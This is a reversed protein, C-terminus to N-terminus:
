GGLERRAENIAANLEAMAAHTGGRDPHHKAAMHRYRSEVADLDVKEDFKVGLVARWTRQTGPLAKYGRFAARVINLGGHRMKTREAEICRFIAQLNEELRKYRDVAICHQEGDWTFYVAVGGDAPNASSLAYNSSIVVGSVPKGTDQGFRRLEEEVNKLAGALTAKFKSPGRDKLATRPWGPPWDLPYAAPM